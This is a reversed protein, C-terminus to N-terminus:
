WVIYKVRIQVARWQLLRHIVFYSIMKTCSYFNCLPLLNTWLLYAQISCLYQKGSCIKTIFIIYIDSSLFCIVSVKGTANLEYMSPLKGDSVGHRHTLVENDIYWHSVGDNWFAMSEKTSLNSGHSNILANIKISYAELVHIFWV